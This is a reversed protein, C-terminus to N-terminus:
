TRLLEYVRSKSVGLAKAIEAVPNGANRMEQARAAKAKTEPRVVNSWERTKSNWNKGPMEANGDEDEVASPSELPPQWEWDKVQALYVPDNRWQSVTGLHIFAFRLQRLAQGMMNEAGKAQGARAFKVVGNFLMTIIQALDDAISEAQPDAVPLAWNTRGCITCPLVAVREPLKAEFFSMGRQEVGYGLIGLDRWAIEAAGVMWKECGAADNRRAHNATARVLFEALEELDGVLDQARAPRREQGRALVGGCGPCIREDRSATTPAADAPTPPTGSGVVETTPEGALVDARAATFSKGTKAMHQRIRIKLDKQKTM